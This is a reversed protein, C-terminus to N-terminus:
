PSPATVVAENSYASENNSIDVATSVYYYTNGAAIVSDTFMTGAILSSNAKTYPGGPTSGRYVNYGAISASTSAIWNLVVDHPVAGAGTVCAGGLAANIVRQVIAVNCVGTGGIQASCPMVGLTMNIALQVDAANVIGDQNLDCPSFSTQAALPGALLGFTVGLCAGVSLTGVGWSLPRLVRKTLEFM